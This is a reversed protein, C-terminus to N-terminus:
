GVLTGKFRISGNLIYLAMQTPIPMILLEMAAKNLSQKLSGDAMKLFVAAALLGPFLFLIIVALSISGPLFLLSSTVGFREIIKRTFFLQLILSIVSFTSLWFGFFGTLKDPDPILGAAIGGFQYDVLKAVM